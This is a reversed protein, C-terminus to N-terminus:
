EIESLLSEYKSILRQKQADFSNPGSRDFGEPSNELDKIKQTYTAHLQKGGETKPETMPIEAESSDVPELEALLGNYKRILAQKRNFYSDPGSKPFNGEAKLDVIKQDYSAKLQKGGETKPTIMQVATQTFDDQFM